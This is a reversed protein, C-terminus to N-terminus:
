IELNLDKGQTLGKGLDTNLAVPEIGDCGGCSNHGGGGPSCRSEEGLPGSAARFVAGRLCDIRGCVGGADGGGAYKGRGAGWMPLILLILIVFAAEFGRQFKETKLSEPIKM